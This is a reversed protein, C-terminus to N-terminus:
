NELRSSSSNANSSSAGTKKALLQHLRQLNTLTAGDNPSLNLATRYNEEAEKWEGKVHLLAGLNRYVEVDQKQLFFFVPPTMKKKKKRSDIKKTPFTKKKEKQFPKNNYGM